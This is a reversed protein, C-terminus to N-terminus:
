TMVPPRIQLEEDRSYYFQTISHIKKTIWLRGTENTSKTYNFEKGRSGMVTSCLIVQSEKCFHCYFTLEVKCLRFWLPSWKRLIFNSVLDICLHWYEMNSCGESLIWLTCNLAHTLMQYFSGPNTKSLPDNINQNNCM